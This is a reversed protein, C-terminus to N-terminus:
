KIRFITGFLGYSSPPMETWLCTEMDFVGADMTCYDYFFIQTKADNAYCCTTGDLTLMGRPLQNRHVVVSWPEGLLIGKETDYSLGDVQFRVIARKHVIVLSEVPIKCWTRNLERIEAPWTATFSSVIPMAVKNSLYLDRLEGFSLYPFLLSGFWDKELLSVLNFDTSANM